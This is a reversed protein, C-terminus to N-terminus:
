VSLYKTQKTEKRGAYLPRVSQVVVQHGLLNSTHRFTERMQNSEQVTQRPSSVTASSTAATRPRRMLARTPPPAFTPDLMFYKGTEPDFSNSDLSKTSRM